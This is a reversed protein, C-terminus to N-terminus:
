SGWDIKLANTVNWTNGPPDPCFSPNPDRYYTQYMRMAGPSLPDGKAASRASISADGMGPAVAVGSVASKVFLRYL